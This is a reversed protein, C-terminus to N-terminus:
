RAASSPSQLSRSSPAVSWAQARMSACPGVVPAAGVFTPDSCQRLLFHALDARSVFGGGISGDVVAGYKETLPGDHLLVPRVIIWDRDSARTLEEQRARDRFVRRLITAFLLRMSWWKVERASDAVGFSSVCVFRRVGHRRMSALVHETATSCVLTHNWARTGLLCVVADQDAVVADITAADFADGRV